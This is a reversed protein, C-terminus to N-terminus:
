PKQGVVVQQDAPAHPCEHLQCVIEFDDANGADEVAEAIAGGLRLGLHHNGVDTHRWIEGSFADFCRLLDALAVGSGADHDEGLVVIGLVGDRQQGISSGAVGVQEFVPNGLTVLEYPGDAAQLAHRRRLMGLRYVSLLVVLGYWGLLPTRDVANWLLLVLVGTVFCTWLVGQVLDNILLLQLDRATQRDVNPTDGTLQKIASQM